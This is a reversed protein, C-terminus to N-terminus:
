GAGDQKRRTQRTNRIFDRIKNVDKRGGTEVGSSVDVGWPNIENILKRVNEPTLGGAIMIPFRGTVERAVQWDFVEGTGGYAGEVGCDLLYILRYKLRLRHYKVIDEIIEDATRKASVHFAKIIPRDIELCFEWSEDGSLQVWDLQCYRAIDNIDQASQNVFVGVVETDTSTAHVNNALQLAKEPSVRRRSPAFVLGVFDAGARCAAVAHETESIGCIKVKTM